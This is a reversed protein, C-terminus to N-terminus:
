GWYGSLVVVIQTGRWWGWSQGKRDRILQGGDKIRKDYYNTNITDISNIASSMTNPLHEGYPAINLVPPGVFCVNRSELSNECIKAFDYSKTLCVLALAIM